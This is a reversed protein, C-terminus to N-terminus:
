GLHTSHTALQARLWGLLATDVAPAYPGGGWHQFADAPSTRLAFEHDAGPVEAFHALRPHAHALAEYLCHHEDRYSQWDCAGWAVLTPRAAARLPEIVASRQVERWYAVSRGEIRGDADLGYAEPQARAAPTHAFFDALPLGLVLLWAEALQRRRVQADIVAPDLGRLAGVTRTHRSLYEAWSLSGVGYLIMGAITGPGLDACLQPALLGGLSHGFLFVRDRDCWPQALTWRLAAAHDHREDSLTADALPPGESDGVSRKDVRVVAYGAHGLARVLCRLPADPAPREVSGLSCGSVWLVTPWPGAGTNPTTVVARLRHTGASLARYSVTLADEQELPWPDPALSVARSVGARSVTLPLSAGVLSASLASRAAQTGAVAVGRVAEVIDGPAIRARHAPSGRRVRAVRAGPPDVAGDRVVPADDFAIGLLGRRPLGDLLIPASSM